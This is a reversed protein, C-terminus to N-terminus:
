TRPFRRTLESDRPLTGNAAAAEIVSGIVKGRAVCVRITKGSQIIALCRHTGNVLRGDSSICVPPEPKWNGALMAAAFRDVRAADYVYRTDSEHPALVKHVLLKRALEPTLDIEAYPEQPLDDTAMDLVWLPRSANGSLTPTWAIIHGGLKALERHVDLAPYGSAESSSANEIFVLDASELVSLLYDPWKSPYHHLVSLCLTVDFHGLEAIESPHLQCPIVTVGPSGHLDPTSDVAICQAAFDDALRRSFYGRNAGLDLCTFNEPASSQRIRAAIAEYRSACDRAGPEVERGDQWQPQYRRPPM